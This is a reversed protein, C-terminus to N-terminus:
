FCYHMGVAPLGGDTVSLGVSLSRNMYSQMLKHSAVAFMAGWVAGAVIQSLYHRNVNIFTVGIIGAFIGLPAAHSLGYHMGFFAAMYVAEAMHGSPFGGHARKEHSFKENWPRLCFDFKIKKIIDKGFIVFPMITTFIRGMKRDVEEKGFLTYSMLVTMPVGIGYEIAPEVWRPM